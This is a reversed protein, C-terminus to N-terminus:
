GSGSIGGSSKRLRAAFAGDIGDKPPFSAYYGSGTILRDPVASIIPEVRFEPHREIFSVVREENEEPELSCTSYVLLGGPRVKTAAATLLADQLHVLDQLDVEKRRWRMDARKSLVGSGSCPVDLLVRDYVSGANFSRLDSHIARIQQFRFRESLKKLRSLRGEHADVADVSGTQTVRDAIFFSKGGPAACADLIREGPRPNLVEVVLGAGEDQVLVAGSGMLGSKIVEQLRGVRIFSDLYSSEEAHVGQGSLRGLIKARDGIRVRLGFVPRSNNHVLLYVTDAAGYRKLWRRVMWTPHSHWVALNEAEDSLTPEPLADRNRDINRLLANVLGTVRPGVMSRATRVNENIAAHPPTGTELLEYIGIRLIIRVRDELAVSSSKYSSDILFDLKRRWRTVGSVLDTLRREHDAGFTSKRSLGVFAGENEVRQLERVADIRLANSTQSSV